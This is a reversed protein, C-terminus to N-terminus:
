KIGVPYDLVGSKVSLRVWLCYTSASVGISEVEYCPQYGFWKILKRAIADRISDPGDVDSALMLELSVKM